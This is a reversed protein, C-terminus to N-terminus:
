RVQSHSWHKIEGNYEERIIRDIIQKYDATAQRSDCVAMAKAQHNIKNITFKMFQDVIM